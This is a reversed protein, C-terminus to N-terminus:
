ERPNDRSVNDGWANGGNGKDDFAGITQNGLVLGKAAGVLFLEPKQYTM